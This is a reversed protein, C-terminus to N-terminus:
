QGSKVPDAGAASQNRNVQNCGNRWEKESPQKNGNFTWSLVESSPITFCVPEEDKRGEIYYTSGLRSHIRVDSFHCPRTESLGHNSAIVCAKETLVLSAAVFHGFKYIRMIANPIFTVGALMIIISAVAAISGIYLSFLGHKQRGPLFPTWVFFINFIILVSLALYLEYQSSLLRDLLLFSVLFGQIAVISQFPFFISKADKFLLWRVVAIFVALAIVCISTQQVDSWKVEVVLLMVPLAIVPFSFFIADKKTRSVFILGPLFLIIFLWFILFMGTLAATILLTVSTESTSNQYFATSYFYGIFLIGGLFLCVQWVIFLAKSIPDLNPKVRQAYPRVRAFFATLQKQSPADPPTETPATVPVEFIPQRAQPKDFDVPRARWRASMAAM